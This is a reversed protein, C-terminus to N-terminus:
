IADVIYNHVGDLQVGVRLVGPTLQSKGVIVFSRRKMEGAELMESITRKQGKTLKKPGSVLHISKTM